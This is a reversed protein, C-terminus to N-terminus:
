RHVESEQSSYGDLYEGEAAIFKSPDHPHQCNGNFAKDKSKPIMNFADLKM